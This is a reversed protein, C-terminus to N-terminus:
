GACGIVKRSSGSRRKNQFNKMLQEIDGHFTIWSQCLSRMDYHKCGRMYRSLHFAEVVEVASTIFPTNTLDYM